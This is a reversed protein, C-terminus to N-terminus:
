RYVRDRRNGGSLLYALLDKLEAENLADILGTPMQSVKSPTMEEIDEEHLKVPPQDPDATYVHVQDDITVIRGVLVQGDVTLIQHSGYQDSIAKSPEILADLLDPLPYKRGATSLDPGIAGGEGGLRHCKACQVAHFLNRGRDFNQKSLQQALPLAAARTWERGPGKPASVQPPEATLSVAALDELLVQHEPTTTALADDRIQSLFKAYSNGGPHKAADVFFQFYRRRQELTWGEEQNRLVFAYHMARSPPMDELLRGVTGGYGRHREVLYGWDPVPEAGLRDMVQLTRGVVGDANLYVLLQILEADISHEGSPYHADLVQLTSRRQAASPEGLRTFALQYARLLARKQQDTRDAFSVSRLLALTAQLDERSGQRALAIAASIKAMPDSLQVVRDRWGDVAQHELAIRAAYRIFRDSDGLSELVFQLQSESLPKGDHFAELKQRTDRAQAAPTASAQVPVTPQEGQYSVRYLASQTGRGGVTFYMMGDDAIVADTVQLPQGTVFDEQEGRYSAGDPTLHVAYITSYTWDLLFLAQQYKAPFAANYGFTIGVPSGPGIDVAPPLSDEYYTPWKGTGSRWGFESGSTAHVVRTPRYWPTGLDWEMDADYSFLEGDANFAIDYQNRFGISHVQWRKGTPDVQCIWGGPALKGAAHGNADWRRPLLLDEGWNTPIRSAAIDSPLDTHNGGCVYLSQKDPALIVAHPGHEGGGPVHMLHEAHDLEGDDDHDTIRHLGSKAGGNVMVYLSDFAWLLGQAGSLSVPIKTVVTEEGDRGPRIRFLGKGGQDCAILGGRDDKALSVWSGMLRPVQFVKEVVFGEPATVSSDVYPQMTNRNPDAFLAQLVDGNVQSSWVAGPDGVDGMVRPKSWTAGLIDTTKWDDQPDNTALWTEDTSIWNTAGAQSTLQLRLMFAAVGGRNTARVALVNSGEILKSTIDVREPSEWADGSAISQGNLFLEFGNDGSACVIASKLPETVRLDKRFYAPRDQPGETWIWKGLPEEALAATGLCCVLCISLLKQMM